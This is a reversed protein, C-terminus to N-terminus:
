EFDIHSELGALRSFCKEAFNIKELVENYIDPFLESLKRPSKFFSKMEEDTVMENNIRMWIRRKDVNFSYGSVIFGGNVVPAIDRYDGMDLKKIKSMIDNRKEIDKLTAKKM